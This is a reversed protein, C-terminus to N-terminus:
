CSVRVKKERVKGKTSICCTVGSKFKSVVEGGLDEIIKTVEGKLFATGCEIFAFLSYVSRIVSLHLLVFFKLKFPYSLCLNKYM